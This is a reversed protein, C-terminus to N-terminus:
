YSMVGVIGFNIGLKGMGDSLGFSMLFKISTELIFIIALM